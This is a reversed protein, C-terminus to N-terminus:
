WFKVKDLFGKAEESATEQAKEVAADAAKKAMETANGLAKTVVSTANFLIKNFITTVTETLSMPKSDKGIDQLHLAPLSLSLATDNKQLPTIASLLGDAIVVSDIVVNKSASAETTEEAKTEEKAEAKSDSATNKALNQQIQMVNSTTFDPMEYTIEPKSIEVDRVVITNSLLSKPDVSVFIRDLSLLNPASYNLPNGVTLGRIELTGDIPKLKFGALNVETGVIQSGYKHVVTKVLPELCLWGAVLVIVILSVLGLLTYKVFKM